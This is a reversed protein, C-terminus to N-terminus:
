RDQPEESTQCINGTYVQLTSDSYSLNARKKNLSIFYFIFVAGKVCTQEVGAKREVGSM